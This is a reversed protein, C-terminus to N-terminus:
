NRCWTLPDVATGDKRIGFYLGSENRGGSAGVAAIVDGSAVIDGVRKYLSQNFAYLTMYGQEHDIIM